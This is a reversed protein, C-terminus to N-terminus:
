KVRVTGANFVTNPNTTDVQKPDINARPGQIPAGTLRNLVKLFTDGAPGFLATTLVLVSFLAAADSAVDAVGMLAATAVFGGFPISIAPYRKQGKVLADVTTILVATVMAGLVVSQAKNSNM